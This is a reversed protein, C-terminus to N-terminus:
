SAAKLQVVNDVSGSESGSKWALRRFDKRCPRLIADVRAVVQERFLSQLTEADSALYHRETINKLSHGLYRELSSGSWGARRAESPLTRRLGKPELPLNPRWKRLAGRLARGYEHHSHYAPIVRPGNKSCAELVDLVLGPLPLRRVSFENKVEGEITVHGAKLDVRDWTLRLVENVRLGCLGQLAVDPLLKWGKSHGLLWILFDGVEAPTLAVRGRQDEYLLRCSRKPPRYGEAFDHFADRWNTAAWRSASRVPECYHQITKNAKEEVVLANAYSQLHELRLDRWKRIRPYQAELWRLFQLCNARYWIRTTASCNKSKLWREFCDSILLNSIDEDEESRFLMRDAKLVAEELSSADFQLRTRKGPSANRSARWKGPRM